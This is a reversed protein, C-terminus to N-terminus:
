NVAIEFLEIILLVLIKMFLGLSKLKRKLNVLKVFGASPDKEKHFNSPASSLIADFNQFLSVSKEVNEVFDHDFEIFSSLDHSM